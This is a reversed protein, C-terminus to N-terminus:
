KKNEVVMYLVARAPITVTIGGKTAAAQAKISQYNSPGGSPLTPGNGNVFTKGSFEGNDSGGTLTYWYYMDGPIFNKIDININKDSSGMNVLVLGAEGSSYTSTYSLIDTAGSISSSVMKDGFYKQFYYMHYFAPRPNWKTSNGPEDGQSFMGHDNGNDWANALDWRSAMGFQNKLLEGLVMVAHMGAVNSVMQRSGVAFINWETLAIPKMSVGGLQTTTKMWDMISKTEASATKSIVDATSNENYPTFYDHVIYFDPYDGAKAFLGSNWTRDPVNWSNSADVQILQAGIKIDAGIEQAAKRMSDAFIKFHNGYVEGSITEPQGDQNKVLDIKFGAQWPGDSENGIEWFKTRGKDYRVWDAALHAAAEAPKPGTGYRAYGYNITIIGTSGTQQLMAYYNDVSLTWNETNKGYWYSAPVPNGDSDYLTLAADAPPGDKPANWFYVSSINGGPFRIVHPALNTIHNILVPETVMQTMYPNSNNGFLYKSVRTTIDSADMTITVSTVSPKASTTYDPKVFNKAVWDDLYFGISAARPNEHPPTISGPPPQNNGNGNGAPTKKCSYMMGLAGMLCIVLINASIYQCILRKYNNMM